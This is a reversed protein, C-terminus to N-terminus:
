QQSVRDRSSAHIVLHLMAESTSSLCLMEFPRSHTVVRLKGDVAREQM